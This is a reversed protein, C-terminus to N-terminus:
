LCGCLTWSNMGSPSDPTYLLLLRQEITQSETGSLDLSNVNRHIGLMAETTFKVVGGWSGM